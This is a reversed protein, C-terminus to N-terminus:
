EKENQSSVWGRRIEYFELEWETMPGPNAYVTALFDPDPRHEVCLQLPDHAECEAWLELRHDEPDYVWLTTVVAPAPEEGQWHADVYQQVKKIPESCWVPLRRLRRPRGQVHEIIYPDTEMPLLIPHAVVRVAYDYTELDRWNFM